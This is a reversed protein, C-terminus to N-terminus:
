GSALTGFLQNDPEDNPGLIVTEAIERGLAAVPRNFQLLIKEKEKWDPEQQIAPESAGRSALDKAGATGSNGVRPRIYAIVVKQGFRARVQLYSSIYQLIAARKVPQDNSDLWNNDQWTKLWTKFCDIFYQSNTRIVLPKETIETSELVRVVALLEARKRTQKGPCREALNRPDNPGWWVGVGAEGTVKSSVATAYVVDVDQLSNVGANSVATSNQGTGLDRNVPTALETTHTSAAPSAPNVVSTYTRHKLTTFPLTSVQSGTDSATQSSLAQSGSADTINATPPQAASTSASPATDLPQGYVFADADEQLDFKKYRAGPFGKVQKECEPWSHYVGPNRGVRVAYLLGKNRYPPM